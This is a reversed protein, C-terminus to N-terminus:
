YILLPIILLHASFPLELKKKKNFYLSKGSWPMFADKYLEYLNQEAWLGETLQFDPLESDITLTDPTYTQLKVCEAGASKAMDIIKYANNIDGNHNASMEAIVYPPFSDGIKRENITIFNKMM